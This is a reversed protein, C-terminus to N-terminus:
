INVHIRRIYNMGMHIDLLEANNTAHRGLMFSRNLLQILKTGCYRM